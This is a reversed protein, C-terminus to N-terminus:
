KSKFYNSIICLFYYTRKIVLYFTVLLLFEKRVREGVALCVARDNEWYNNNVIKHIDM